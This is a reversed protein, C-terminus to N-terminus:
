LSLFRSEDYRTLSAKVIEQSSGTLIDHPRNDREKGPLSKITGDSNLLIWFHIKVYIEEM